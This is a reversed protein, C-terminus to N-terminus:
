AGYAGQNVYVNPITASFDNCLLFSGPSQQTYGTISATVGDGQFVWSVNTAPATGFFVKLRTTNAAPPYVGAYLETGSPTFQILQGSTIQFQGAGTPPVLVADGPTGVDASYTYLLQRAFYKGSVESQLYM